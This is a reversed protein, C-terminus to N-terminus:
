TSDRDQQQEDDEGDRDPRKGKTRESPREAGGCAPALVLRSRLVAHGLRRVVVGRAVPDAALVSAVRPGGADVALRASAAVKLDAAFAAFAERRAASDPARLISSPHVTVLAETAERFPLLRGRDVTVRIKSGLLSQAAVAGLCVLVEPRVVEIEDDLWPRCAAIHEGAPRQHIRRKGRQRFRFHKVANTLYVLSRDIGADALARDLVRGAPGVFPAGEIDERDGPQEGVLMLRATRTGEGFVTQTADQWLPCARCGAAAERLAPLSRRAPRPRADTV